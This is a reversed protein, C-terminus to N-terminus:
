RLLMLQSVLKRLLKQLMPVVDKGEIGDISWGKTWRQLIGENIRNQSAPYSFTFGLPLPESCGDPYIEDVFEKLCKAIFDWLEDLTATRMHAPLAFKSQTTDFDRNGGLKVLVVRLNTGGLDIALYSGTEKGTPFDMVWGPIMPINGGAKSLGRDLESIFHKVIARM